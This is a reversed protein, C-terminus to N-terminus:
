TLGLGPFVKMRPKCQLMVIVTNIRITINKQQLIMSNCFLEKKQSDALRLRAVSHYNHNVPQLWSSM